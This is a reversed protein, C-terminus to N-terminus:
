GLVSSIKYSQWQIKTIFDKPLKPKVAFITEDSQATTNLENHSGSRSVAPAGTKSTNIHVILEDRSVSSERSSSHEGDSPGVDEGRAASEVKMHDIVELSEVIKEYLEEAEQVDREIEETPCTAVIKNDLANLVDKKEELLKSLTNLRRRSGPEISEADVLAKVEQIYKTM